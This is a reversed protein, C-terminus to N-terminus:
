KDGMAPARKKAEEETIRFFEMQEENDDGVKILTLSDGDIIAKGDEETGDANNIKSIVTKTAPDSSVIVYTSKEPAEPGYMFSNEGDFHVVMQGAM